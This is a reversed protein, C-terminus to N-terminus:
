YEWCVSKVLIVKGTRHRTVCSFFIMTKRMYVFNSFSFMDKNIESLGLSNMKSEIYM